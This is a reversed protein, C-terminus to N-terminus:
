SAMIHCRLYKFGRNQYIMLGDKLGLRYGIFIGLRHIKELPTIQNSSVRNSEFLDIKLQFKLEVQKNIISNIERVVNDM